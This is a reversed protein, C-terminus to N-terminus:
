KRRLHGSCKFELQYVGSGLTLSVESPQEQKFLYWRFIMDSQTWKVKHVGETYPDGVGSDIIGIAGNLNLTRASRSIALKESSDHRGAGICINNEDCTSFGIATCRMTRPLETASVSAAVGTLFAFTCMMGAKYM